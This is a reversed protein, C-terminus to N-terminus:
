IRSILASAWFYGMEWPDALSFGIIFFPIFIFLVRSGSQMGIFYWYGCYVLTGVLGLEGLLIALHIHAYGGAMYSYLYGGVEYGLGFLAVSLNQSFFNSLGDLIQLKTLFSGDSISGEGLFLFVSVLAGMLCLIAFIWKPVFAKTNWTNFAVWLFSVLIASRSLTFFILTLLVISILRKRFPSSYDSFHHLALFVLLFAGVYNSDFFMISSMKFFYFTEFSLGAQSGTYIKLLYDASESNLDLTPVLYRLSTEIAVVVIALLIVGKVLTQIQAKPLDDSLFKTLFFSALIYVFHFQNRLFPGLNNM